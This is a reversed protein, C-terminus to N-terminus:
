SNGKKRTRPDAFGRSKSKPPKSKPFKHWELNKLQCLETAELIVYIGRTRKCLREAEEKAAELSTHQVSPKYNHHDYGEVNDVRYVMWFKEWGSSDTM